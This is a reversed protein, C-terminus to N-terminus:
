TLDMPVPQAKSQGLLDSYDVMCTLLDTRSLIGEDWLSTLHWILQEELGSDDLKIAHIQIFDRCLGPVKDIPIQLDSQAFDNWLGFFYKEQVSVDTFEDLYQLRL